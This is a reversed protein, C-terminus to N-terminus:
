KYWEEKIDNEDYIKIYKYGCNHTDKYTFEGTTIYPFVETISHYLFYKKEWVCSESDRVLVKTFPPVKSWDIERKPEERKWILKVCDNPLNDIINILNHNKTHKIEYVEIVDLDEMKIETLDENYEELGTIPIGEIVDLSDKFEDGILIATQNNRFRVIMGTKLDSKTFQQM